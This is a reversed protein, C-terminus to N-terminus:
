LNTNCKDSREADLYLKSNFKFTNDGELTIVSQNDGERDLRQM